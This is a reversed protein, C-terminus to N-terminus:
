HRQAMASTFAVAVPRRTQLFEVTKVLVNVSTEPSDPCIQLVDADCCQEEYRQLERRAWWVVPHWWFLTIVAAELVRVLHDGRRIHALEHALVITQEHGDLQQMLSRPLVLVPRWGLCWVLPPHTAASIRVAPARCLGIRRALSEVTETDARSAPSCRRLHR